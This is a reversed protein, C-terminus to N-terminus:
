ESTNRGTMELYGVGHHSGSVRVPGEWYSFSLDMWAAPNLVEVELDVSFEPVKVRWLAPIDGKDTPVTRLPEATFAGNALPTAAGDATIWTGSTFDETAGRLVFGMLQDGSDFSLSFWDWGAQDAALPQSSWERDLWATGTVTVPGEPLRLTGAVEYKPQSYYHSAQGASSKVSYGRDGHFVLPGQATLTLDYSFEDTEAALNLKDFGAVPEQAALQWSDIWAAFPAATVGAQGIGGRAFKEAAIHFSQGTVAAHAMWIQPSNWGSATQPALASRFLTWQIGFPRGAADQLNATIYWWEIRYDPHAGHDRPFSLEYTPEPVAFGEAESGLGAYGQGLVPTALALFVGCLRAIM